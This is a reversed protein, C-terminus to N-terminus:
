RRWWGASSRAASAAPTASSPTTAAATRPRARPQAPPLLASRRSVSRRQRLSQYVSEIWYDQTRFGTAWGKWEASLGAKQIEALSKGSEIGAKVTQM